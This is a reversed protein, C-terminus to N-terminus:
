SAKAQRLAHSPLPTIDIANALETAGTASMRLDIRRGGDGVASRLRRCLVDALADDEVAVVVQRGTRRIAALVEVLNLARYDDIHQVPDDLVLSNWRCWTRSLHVALLFALGAARRQGSSFLFQPNGAGGVVFNLSARVRGGFDAEIELWDPHPRLRRYLEKLLPMVTDFQEELVQNAVTKVSADIQRASEVGREVESLKAAATEGHEKLASVRTELNKVRDITSSAELVFLAREVQALQEQATLLLQYALEPQDIRVDFGNASYAQQIAALEAGIAARSRRLGELHIASRSAAADAIAADAKAETVATTVIRLREARGALRERARAVAVGFEEETREADCLPCHGHNLGISTGHEILASLHAAYEDAEREVAALAEAARLRAVTDEQVKVAAVQATEAATLQEVGASSNIRQFESLLTAAHLRAAEVQTLHQRRDAAWKRVADTRDAVDALAPITKISRIAEALDASREAVSRAETLASLTRGLEEQLRDIEKQQNERLANAASLVAATRKSYDPGAIAGIASRVASFRAQEPLDLSLAAILEDRILSTQILIEIAPAPTPGSQCLRGLVEASTLSAQYRDRTLSFKTGDADAFGVSVYHSTATGKGMWWIHDDLGGGKAERVDFRNITGSLAFDIADIVTSKGAGNRGTLVVFGDSFDVRLKERVGRFGALEVFDIKM